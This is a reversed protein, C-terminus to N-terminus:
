KNVYNYVSASVKKIMNTQAAFDNGRTMVCILYPKTPHYVIGCDHLQKEGTSLYQREGFKHSINVDSPIGAKLGKTFKIQSLLKLAKESMDTNLYSANYLIRFFAAYNKVSLINGSPNSEAETIDVGLDKYVQYIKQTDINEL